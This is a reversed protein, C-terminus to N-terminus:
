QKVRVLTRLLHLALHDCALNMNVNSSILQETQDLADIVGLWPELQQENELLAGPQCRSLTENMRLRAHNAIMAWMLGAAQKNAAEKSANAHEKVWATAFAEICQFIIQGLEPQMDRKAMSDMAPLIQEAWQDLDYTLALELRGLSGEAFRTLWQQATASKDSALEGVRQAIVEQPLHSFGLRQCRSRITPLLRDEKDTVLIILTGAPPEELTKLLANQGSPNLLEAEDVIFVKRRSLQAAKYVPEILASRIIEVPIQTLKRERTARDDSYRALEKRIIHLDPHSADSLKCSACRGCAIIFSDDEPSVARQHCLVVRALALATTFKGVGAPGHFLYGHHLRDNALQRQLNDIAQRQGLIQRM